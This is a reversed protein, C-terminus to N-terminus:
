GEGGAAPAPEALLQRIVGRMREMEGQQTERFYDRIRGERDVLAFDVSHTVPDDANWPLRLGGVAFRRIDEATGTVFYWREPDAGYTKGFQDLRQATDWAPDCTVAVIRFDPQDRFEDQLKAMEGSMPICTTQCRTFIISAIWVKGKLDKDSLPRGVRELLVFEGVELADGGAIRAKGIPEPDVCAAVLALLFLLNRTM